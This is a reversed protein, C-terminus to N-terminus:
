SILYVVINIATCLVVKKVEAQEIMFERTVDSKPAQQREYEELTSDRVQM